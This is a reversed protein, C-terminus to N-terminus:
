SSPVSSSARTLVMDERMHHINVRLVSITGRPSSCCSRCLLMWAGVLKAFDQNRAQMGRISYEIRGALMLLLLSCSSANDLILLAAPEAIDAKLHDALRLALLFVVVLKLCTDM